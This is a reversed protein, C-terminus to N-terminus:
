IQGATSACIQPRWRPRRLESGLSVEPAGLDRTTAPCAGWAWRVWLLVCVPERLQRGKNLGSTGLEWPRPCLGLDEEGAVGEPGVSGVFGLPPCILGERVRPAGVGEVCLNLLGNRAPPATPCPPGLRM